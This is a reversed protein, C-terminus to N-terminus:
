SPPPPGYFYHRFVRFVHSPPPPAPAPFCTRCYVCLTSVHMGALLSRHPPCVLGFHPPSPHRAWDGFSLVYTCALALGYRLLLSLPFVADPLWGGGSVVDM